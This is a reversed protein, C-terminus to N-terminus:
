AFIDLFSKECKLCKVGAEDDDDDEEEGEERQMHAGDKDEGAESSCDETSEAKGTSAASSSLASPASILDGDGDEGSGELHIPEKPGLLLEEGASIDRTTEYYIQGALLFHRVNKKGALPSEEKAERFFKLWTGYESADLFGRIGASPVLVQFDFQFFEM